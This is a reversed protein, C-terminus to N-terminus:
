ERSLFIADANKLQEESTAGYSNVVTWLFLLRSYLKEITEDGSEILTDTKEKQETYNGTPFILKSKDGEIKYSCDFMMKEIADSFASHEATSNFLDIHKEEISRVFERNDKIQKFIQVLDQNSKALEGELDKYIANFDDDTLSKNKQIELSQKSLNTILNQSDVWKKHEAESLLGGFNEYSNKLSTKLIYGDKVYRGFSKKRQSEANNQDRPTPKKLYVSVEVDKEVPTSITSNGETKTEIVIEKHTIPFSYLKKHTM